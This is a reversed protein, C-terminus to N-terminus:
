PAASFGSGKGVFDSVRELTFSQDGYQMVHSKTTETRVLSYQKEITESTGTEMDLDQMWNVSFLDGLCSGLHKGNVKDDPMCYTGWSSEQANAATLGYVGPINMGEFMSGSECAELYFVLRKFMAKEKMTKLAGLLEAKHMVSEPFGIIGVGGHDVFNVFVNDESTSRLVKGNGTGTLINAFDAPTVEGGKYDIKCGAYVDKGPVGDNTPKNFLQGRFPNEDNNAIDDVAMLIINDEPVGKAKGM